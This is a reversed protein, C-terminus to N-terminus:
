PIMLEVLLDVNNSGGLLITIDDAYMIFKLVNSCNVLDNIYINFLLPGLISGQPVGMTIPLEESRAENLSVYQRRNSLYSIFWELPRGRIGCNQLKSLLISHDITDFARSLDIFVGVVPQKTEMHASVFHCLDLIALDTSANERFGYQCPTFYTYKNLFSSLKNHVIKELIKSFVSVLSIPRYNIINTPDDKKFIPIVKTIKLVSPFQGNSLSQNILHTLPSILSCITQKLLFNSINDDGCSYTNKFSQIILLVEEEGIQEFFISNVNSKPLYSLYTSDTINNQNSMSNSFQENFKNCIITKELLLNDNEKLVIDCKPKSIKLTKKILEWTKKGNRQNILFQNHVYNNETIKCLKTFLNKYKIYNLKNLTTKNKLYIKYLKNKLKASTQLGTTFWPQKFRVSKRDRLQCFRNLANNLVEIFSVFNVDVQNSQLLSAWDYNLLYNNLNNLNNKNFNRTKHNNIETKINSTQNLFTCIPFHDSLDFTLIASFGIDFDNTFINDLLTSSYETIRTPSTILPFLGYISLCDMFSSRIHRFDDVLLNINFDGLVYLNKNLLKINDLSSQLTEFFYEFDTNPPRYIVYVIFSKSTELFIELVMWDFIENTESLDKRIVFHIGDKVFFGVGGGTRNRRNNCVFKYGPLSVLTESSPDLWTESVGILSFDIGCQDILLQILTLKNFLSRANIHLLSFYFNNIKPMIDLLKDPFITKSILNFDDMLNLDPDIDTFDYNNLTYNDKYLEM